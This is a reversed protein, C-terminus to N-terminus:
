VNCLVGGVEGVWQSAAHLLVTRDSYVSPFSVGLGWGLCMEYFAESYLMGAKQRRQGHIYCPGVSPM